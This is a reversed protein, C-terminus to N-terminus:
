LLAECNKALVDEYKHLDVQKLLEYARKHVRDEEQMTKKNRSLAGWVGAQMRCHQSVVVNEIATMNAFLRINQFTRAIGFGTIKEPKVNVLEKGDFHITGASPTYFGTIVNFLTTKGAGNPGILSFIREKEVAFSLESLATVGGFRMTLNESQLLEM